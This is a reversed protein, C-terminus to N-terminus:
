FLYIQLMTNIRSLTNKRKKYNPDYMEQAFLRIKFFLLAKAKKGRERFYRKLDEKITNTVKTARQYSMALKQEKDKVYNSAKELVGMAVMHAMVSVMLLNKIITPNESPIKDLSLSQKNAKFILEIQWRLKYLNYLVEARVKLNTVYWHYKKERSNWFGM